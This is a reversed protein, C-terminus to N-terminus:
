PPRPSAPGPSLRDAAEAQGAPAFRWRLGAIGAKSPKCLASEYPCPLPSSGTLHQTRVFFASGSRGTRSALLTTRAPSANGDHFSPGAFFAITSKTVRTVVSPPASTT